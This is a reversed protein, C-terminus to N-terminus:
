RERGRERQKEESVRMTTYLNIPFISKPADYAYLLQEGIITRMNEREEEGNIERVREEIKEGDKKRSKAAGERRRTRV